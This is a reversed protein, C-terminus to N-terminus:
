RGAALSACRGLVGADGRGSGLTRCHVERVRFARLFFGFDFFRFFRTEVDAKGIAELARVIEEGYRMVRNVDAFPTPVTLVAILPRTEHRMSYDRTVLVDYGAKKLEHLTGNYTGDLGVLYVSTCRWEPPLLEGLADAVDPAFCEDLLVNM